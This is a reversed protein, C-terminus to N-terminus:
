VVQPTVPRPRNAKINRVALTTTRRVVRTEGEDLEIALTTDSVHVTVTRHQHIRGLAVKQGCVMIVGTNSARRQVRIPETSPRPPPGAPRNGRLRRIKDPTLPNPRVRLLERTDLDYFMLTDPEIRIGIRRGGLIEAALLVQGGLVVTGGRSVVREVEVADGPDAPPLPPPGATVAGDAVLRTLDTVTLHSRVTKVRTGGILLHILDCDAWFRVMQGARVPGLWFQRGAVQLNGSPPVVRDFEVPGGTWPSGAASGPPAPDTGDDHGDTVRGAAVTPAAALTPPLWVPLLESDHHPAPSFRDAPSVPQNPDLAQHPRHTNYQAVFADVAAQAAEISEFPEHDDLLERRLTLHFREIKGTTTPSAPQTLRHTIGNHRCIKDFLVEGRQSFRGTFQKGNDSLIEEPVGYRALAAALALCVARGTAREVVSAIVCFRSHDDVGTVVKVERLVGTTTDVLWVGGVIDLQWLQMPGPREWRRYSDRPRKRKRQLVLGHRVLIRNVTATSPIRVGVPPTKLLEMRIRKAGWRPHMRRMETVVVSVSDSAQHPCSAPRHSRDALGAVGDLLYRRLWAHVSVRSVGVAAAVETVSAGALVARVADLRQEVKSLVVLAM